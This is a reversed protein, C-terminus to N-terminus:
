RIYKMSKECDKLAINRLKIKEINRVRRANIIKKVSKCL